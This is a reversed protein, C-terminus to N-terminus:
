ILVGADYKFNTNRENYLLNSLTFFTALKVYPGKYILNKLKLIKYFKRQNIRFYGM